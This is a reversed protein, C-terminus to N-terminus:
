RLRPPRDPDSGPAAPAAAPAAAAPDPLDFRLGVEALRAALAAEGAVFALDLAGEELGGFVVAERLSRALPGEAGPAVDAVGLLLGRQGGAYRAEVLWAARALGAARALAADLAGLLREPAGAPPAVAVPREAIEGPAEELMAAFWDLADSPLLISSPAVELNLGLGIGQGALMEALARGPLAAYPVPRGAFAALRAESDFALVVPGDELEFVEPSLTEGAAEETLMLVLEVAGLRAYFALRAAGDEPAATMAHHAADLPTAETM